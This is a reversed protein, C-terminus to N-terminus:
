VRVSKWDHQATAKRRVGLRSPLVCLGALEFWLSWWVVWGAVGLSPLVCSAVLWLWLLWWWEVARWGSVVWTAPVVWM